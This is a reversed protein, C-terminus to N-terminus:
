ADPQGEQNPREAGIEATKRSGRSARKTPPEEDIALPFAGPGGHENLNASIKRAGALPDELTLKAAQERLIAALRPKGDAEYRLAEEELQNHHEVHGLILMRQLASGVYAGVSQISLQAIKDITWHVPKPLM